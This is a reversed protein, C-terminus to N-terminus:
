PTPTVWEVPLALVPGLEQLLAATRLEPLAAAVRELADPEAGLGALPALPAPLELGDTGAGGVLEVEDDPRLGARERAAAIAEPLGGLRDVLRRELAQAGTWVRGGAVREVAERSLKRGEAVRDVFSAYVAGIMREVGAREEPTWPKWPSAVDALAGRQQADRGVSLKALLGSLEPKLAFVGISGTLTSPEAVILDAGVAALYGGSAALDGMSVVVPKRKRALSVERWILDSAQADGGPSEVRLVIARVRGDKAAAKIAAAVTEAGALSALGLPERRTKGPAITGDLRVVAVAPPRGWRQARRAPVPKYAPTVKVTRGALRGAYGELEDPWLVEDALGAEKAEAATFLGRDVLAAVKDPPLQRGESLDALLRGYVDDLLAGTMERSEASPGSRTLPEPATKWAGAKAVEVAVGLRALGDKLYLESRALGTLVLPTSPPLVVATAASALWYEKTGGGALYAVVPKRQRLASVLARLEEVRGGGLPLPEIRLVVASVEGDTRALELRKVLDGYPDRQGFLLWLTRPPELLRHLDLTPAEGGSPAARYREASARLGALWATDSRHTTAGGIWGSNPSSWALALLTAVGEEAAPAGRLPLRVQASLGIGNRLELQGGLAVHTPHFDDRARDDALLDAALTLGDDLLRTALGVDYRVPVAQGALRADLGLASAGISLARLPRLTLGLDWAHLAEIAPDPSSWWRWAIGLSAVRGDSLAFGLSTRRYRRGDTPRVWEVSLAPGIPGLLGAAYIGDAAGKAGTSEEHLYHLAPAGLFGVGAPNVSLATAEEAAAVGTVPLPLGHPFPAGVDQVQAAAPLAALLAAALPALAASRPM